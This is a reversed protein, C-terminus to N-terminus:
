INKNKNKRMDFFWKSLYTEGNNIMMEGHSFHVKQLYLECPYSFEDSLHHTVVSEFVLMLFLGVITLPTGPSYRLDM